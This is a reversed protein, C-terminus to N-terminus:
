LFEEFHYIQKHGKPREQFEFIHTRVVINEAHM